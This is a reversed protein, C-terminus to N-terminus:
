SPAYSELAGRAPRDREHHTPGGDRGPEGGGGALLPRARGGGGRGRRLLEGAEGDRRRRPRSRRPRAGDRRTGLALRHDAGGRGAGGPPEAVLREGGAGCPDATPTAGGRGRGPAKAWECAFAKGSTITASSVWLRRTMRPLFWVGDHDGSSLVECEGALHARPEPGIELADADHSRVTPDRRRRAAHCRPRYRASSM